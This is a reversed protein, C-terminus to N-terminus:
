CSDYYSGSKGFLFLLLQSIGSVILMGALFPFAVATVVVGWILYLIWDCIWAIFGPIDSM